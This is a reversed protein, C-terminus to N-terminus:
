VLMGGRPAPALTTIDLQPETYTAHDFTAFHHFDGIPTGNDFVLIALTNGYVWGARNLVEQVASTVTISYEDGATVNAAIGTDTFASTMTKANLATWDAPASASDAAECGIRVAITETRTTAGRLRLTAVSVTVNAPLSVVFPIWSKASNDGFVFRTDTDNLSGKGWTDATTTSYTVVATM